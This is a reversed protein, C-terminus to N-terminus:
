LIGSQEKAIRHRLITKGHMGHWHLIVANPNEEKCRSWNYISPLLFFDEILAVLVDQDGFYLQNQEISKEAWTELLAIGKKFAIVGSNVGGFPSNQEEAIAIGSPHDCFKFLEHLPGRVECDLDLWVTKKFPTLLCAMPKKFWGNRCEWFQKGHAEEWEDILQPDVENKEAVFVDAVKLRIYIGREKCWRKMSDSLGLDVFAVPFSNTARYTEWWLPLLWELSLDSAVMVGEEAIPEERGWKCYSSYLSLNM